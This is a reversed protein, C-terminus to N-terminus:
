ADGCADASSQHDLSNPATALRGLTPPQRIICAGEDAGDPAALGLACGLSEFSQVQDKIRPKLDAVRSNRLPRTSVWEEGM